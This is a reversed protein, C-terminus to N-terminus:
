DRIWLDLDISLRTYMKDIDYEPDIVRIGLSQGSNLVINDEFTFWESTRNNKTININSYKPQCLINYGGMTIKIIEINTYLPIEKGDKNAFRAGLRDAYIFTNESIRKNGMMTIIRGAPAKIIIANDKTNKGVNYVAVINTNSEDLSLQERRWGITEMHLVFGAYGRDYETPHVTQRQILRDVVYRDYDISRKNAVKEVINVRYKLWAFKIAIVDFLPIDDRNPTGPDLIICYSQNTTKNTVTGHATLEYVYEGSRIEIKGNKIFKNYTENGMVDKLFKKSREKIIYSNDM